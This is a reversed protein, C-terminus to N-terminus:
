IEGVGYDSADHCLFDNDQLSFSTSAGSWIMSGQELAYCETFVSTEVAVAAAEEIYIAGGYGAEAMTETFASDSVSLDISDGKVYIAGGVDKPVTGDPDYAGFIGVVTSSISCPTTGDTPSVEFTISM